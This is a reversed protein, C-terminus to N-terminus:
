SNKIAEKKDLLWAEDKDPWLSYNKRWMYRKINGCLLCTVVTHKESQSRSRIRCTKGSVFVVNCKKCYTRKICPHIRIVHKEAVTKMTSIYYRCLEINKPDQKLVMQAAQYLFNVRQFIEKHVFRPGDKGM